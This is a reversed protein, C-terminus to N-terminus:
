KKPLALGKTKAIKDDMAQLMRYSDAFSAMRNGPNAHLGPVNYRLIKPINLRARNSEQKFFWIQFLSFLNNTM